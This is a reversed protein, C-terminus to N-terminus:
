ALAVPATRMATGSSLESGRRAVDYADVMAAVHYLFFAFDFIILALAKEATLLSTLAASGGLLFLLGVVIILLMPIAWVLGKRTDGAYAQGAGPFVFSLFAALTPSPNSM